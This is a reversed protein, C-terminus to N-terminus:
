SNYKKWRKITKQRAKAVDQGRVEAARSAWYLAEERNQTFIGCWMLGSMAGTGAPNVLVARLFGAKAPAYNKNRYHAWGLLNQTMFSEPSLAVAKEFPGTDIRGKERCFETCTDFGIAQADM